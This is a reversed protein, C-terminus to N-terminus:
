LDYNQKLIDSLNAPTLPKSKLDIVLVSEEAKAQDREDLSSTLLFIKMIRLQDEPISKLRELLEFGTMEPMRIDLFLFDPLRENSAALSEIYELGESSSNYTIIDADPDVKRIVEGHIFNFINDDDILLYKKM